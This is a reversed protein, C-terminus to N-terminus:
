NFSNYSKVNIGNNEFHKIIMKIEDTNGRYTFIIPLTRNKLYLWFEDIDGATRSNKHSIRAIDIFEINKNRNFFKTFRLIVLKCELIQVTKIFLISLLYIVFFDLLVIAFIPWAFDTFMITAPYLYLLQLLLVVRVFYWTNKIKINM